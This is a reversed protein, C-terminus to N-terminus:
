KKILKNVMKYNVWIRDANKDHKKLEGIKIIPLDSRKPPIFLKDISLKQNKLAEDSNSMHGYCFLPKIDIQTFLQDKKQYYILLGSSTAGLIGLRWIIKYSKNLM